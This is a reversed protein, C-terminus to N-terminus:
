SSVKSVRKEASTVQRKLVLPARRLSCFCVLGAFSYKVDVVPYLSTRSCSGLEHRIPIVGGGVSGGRGRGDSFSYIFFSVMHISLHARTSDQYSFQKEHGYERGM